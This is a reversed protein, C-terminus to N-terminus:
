PRIAIPTAHKAEVTSKSDPDLSTGKVWKANEATKRDLASMVGNRGHPQLWAAKFGAWGNGAAAKIAEGPTMGAQIAQAKTDAWATPTLPLAKAKRAVLWDVAHQRDVGDAVMDDVSVLAAPAARKRATKTKLDVSPLSSSSSSSGRPGFGGGIPEGIPEGIPPKPAVKPAPKPADDIGASEGRVKRVYEDKVMRSSYWLPGDQAEILVVPPGDRRGSRPTYIYADDLRVDSGKIVCKRVLAALEATKCGVAQAIEELTWRLMGYPEQDHMLCMVELWIGRESFTCRRLNPNAAWDGPYFQFSPRKM